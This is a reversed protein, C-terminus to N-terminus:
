PINVNHELTPFQQKCSNQYCMFSINTRRVNLWETVAAFFVNLFLFTRILPDPFIIRLRSQWGHGGELVHWYSFRNVPTFAHFLAKNQTLKELDATLLIYCKTTIIFPLLVLNLVRFSDCPKLLTHPKSCRVLPRYAPILMVSIHDSYSLHLRPEARYTNSIHTYVLDLANVERTAFDVHQHFKPLVSRLDAHNFDGAM